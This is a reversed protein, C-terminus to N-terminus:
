FSGEPCFILVLFLLLPIRKIGDMLGDMLDIVCGWGFTKRNRKRETNHLLCSYSISRIRLSFDPQNTSKYSPLSELQAVATFAFAGVAIMSASKMKVIPISLYKRPHNISSPTRTQKAQLQFVHHQPNFTFTFFCFPLPSTSTGM